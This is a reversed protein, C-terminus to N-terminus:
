SAMKNEGSVVFPSGLVVVKNWLVVVKLGSVCRINGSLEPIKGSVMLSDGSFLPEKGTGARGGPARSIVRERGGLTAGSVELTGGPM